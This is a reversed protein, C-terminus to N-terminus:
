LNLFINVSVFIFHTNLSNIWKFLISIEAAKIYHNISVIFRLNEQIQHCIFVFFIFLFSFVSILFIFFQFLFIVFNFFDFFMLFYDFLL